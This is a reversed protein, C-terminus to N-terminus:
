PQPPARLSSTPPHRRTPGASPSSPRASSRMRLWSATTATAISVHPRSSPV